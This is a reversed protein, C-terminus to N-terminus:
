RNGWFLRFLMQNQVKLLHLCRVGFLLLAVFSANSIIKYFLLIWLLEPLPSIKESITVCINVLIEMPRSYYLMWICFIFATGSNNLCNAICVTLIWQGSPLSLIISEWERLLAVSEEKKTHFLIINGHHPFGSITHTLYFTIYFINYHLSTKLHIILRWYCHNWKCVMWDQFFHLDFYSFDKNFLCKRKEMRTNKNTFLGVTLRHLLEEPNQEQGEMM